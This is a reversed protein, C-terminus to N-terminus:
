CFDVALSSVYFRSQYTRQSSSSLDRVYICSEKSEVYSSVYEESNADTLFSVKLSMM